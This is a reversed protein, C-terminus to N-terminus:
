PPLTDILGAGYQLVLAADIANIAGDENVDGNEQCTLEGTLGAALQLILAADISNVTGGCDVDGFPGPPPQTPTSTPTPIALPKGWAFADTAGNTDGAVLNTAASQFALVTGDANMSAFSSGGDSDSGNRAVSVRQLDGSVLDYLFIDAAGNDDAPVLNTASSQFAVLRGDGSIVPFHSAGDAQAGGRAGSLRVTTNTEPDRLFVDTADNTDGPTLNDAESHFVVYRGDDSISPYMSHGNGVAGASSLSACETTNLLRDHVFVDDFHAADDPVLNSAFSGFVVYRGDASIRAPGAGLGGSAFDGQTGDSAVSVLETIGANRDHVFVDRDENTDQQVLDSALSTFTVYSGDASISPTMSDGSAQAGDSAVSARTTVGTLRDRIFIDTADNTDHSVLNAADSQFVVYRGDGSIAPFLAARNAQSGDGAVSVLETTASLRDHVFVDRSNTDGPVLNPADSAFAVFRGDASVVPSLSAATAQTGATSVSIRETVEAAGQGVGLLGFVVAAAAV